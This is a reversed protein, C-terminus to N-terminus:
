LLEPVLDRREPCLEAREAVSILCALPALARAAVPPRPSLDSRALRRPLRRAGVTSIGGIALTLGFALLLVLSFVAWAGTFVVLVAGSAVGRLLVQPMQPPLEALARRIDGLSRAQLAM